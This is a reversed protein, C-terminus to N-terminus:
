EGGCARRQFTSSAAFDARVPGRGHGPTFREGTGSAVLADVRDMPLKVVFEGKSSIMAFIRDHVCLASSGFGKKHSSGLTVKPTKKLSRVIRAFREEVSSSSSKM